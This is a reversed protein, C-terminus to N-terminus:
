AGNEPSLNRVHDPIDNRTAPVPFGVLTARAQQAIHREDVQCLGDVIRFHENNREGHSRWRRSASRPDDAGTGTPLFVLLFDFDLQSARGIRPPAPLDGIQAPVSRRHHRAKRARRQEALVHRDDPPHHLLNPILALARCKDEAGVSQVLRQLAAFIVGRAKTRSKWESLTRTTRPPSPSSSRALLVKPIAGTSAGFLTLFFGPM